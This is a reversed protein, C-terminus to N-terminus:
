VGKILRALQDGFGKVIAENADKCGGPPEIITLNLESDAVKKALDAGKEDADSVMVVRNYGEFLAAHRRKWSNAGQIGVAAFGLSAVAICDGEGETLAIGMQPLNLARLNFLRNSMGAPKDYKPETHDDLARFKLGVVHGAACINPIALRGAFREFGNVGVPVYGLRFDRQIAHDFGRGAAYEEGPSGPMAAEFARVARELAAKTSADLPRM